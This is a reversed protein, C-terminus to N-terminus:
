SRAKGGRRRKSDKLRYSEGNMELIHVHHTLRDLLAGTLPLLQKWDQEFREGITQQQGRLTRQRRKRCQELLHTNLEGWSAFQPVPVLFNRRVYGVLGEVKGKDNGKAPRGFKEAFLYHSQLESFARTKVRTGDGLIRAVALKTNDYLIARPVGGFYAFAHNHGELFAETTESPFAMVFCDDSHPLDVALYHAKREVGGIVVLAEGFDAQADGPPHELPVFMERRSVKRLRVYDKVITYGGTYGHEDRLREFIRKATHRQKKGRTKDLELIQDIVGTWADLKPRRAAQQRRYGPPASYRVMKRVTERALGFLRATERESKGEVIVSRRVRAYLEM